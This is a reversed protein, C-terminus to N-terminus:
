PVIQARAGTFFGVIGYQDTPIIPDAEVFLQYENINPNTSEHAVIEAYDTSTEEAILYSDLFVRATFAPCNGECSVEYRLEETGEGGCRDTVADALFLSNAPRVQFSVPVTEVSCEESGCGALAFTGVAVGLLLTGALKM